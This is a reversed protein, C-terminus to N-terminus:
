IHSGLHVDTSHPNEIFQQLAYTNSNFAIEEWPIQSPEFFDIETSELTLTFDTNIANARYILYVQNAPVVSYVTHLQTIEVRIGTEEFVERIAGNEATEDNEMFGCPLNWKGKRPSIGRKALLIKGEHIVICGVVILPNQYHISGCEVCIDRLRHDGEPVRQVLEGSGCISCYNM